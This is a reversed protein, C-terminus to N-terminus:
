GQAAAGSGNKAKRKSAPKDAKADQLPLEQQRRKNKPAFNGESFTFKIQTEQADILKALHKSDPRVQLTVHLQTEGGTLPTLTLGKLRVEGFEIEYPKAGAGIAIMAEKADIADKLTHSEFQPFAPQLVDRKDDFLMASAHPVLEELEDQDLLMDLPIDFATVSEDGHKELRNNIVGMTAPKGKLQLM